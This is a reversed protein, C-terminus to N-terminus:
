FLNLDKTLFILLLHLLSSNFSFKCKVSSWLNHKFCKTEMETIKDSDISTIKRSWSYENNELFLYKFWLAKMLYEEYENSSDTNPNCLFNFISLNFYQLKKTVPFCSSNSSICNWIDHKLFLLDKVKKKFILMITILTVQIILINHCTHVSMIQLSYEM